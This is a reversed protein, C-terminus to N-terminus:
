ARYRSELHPLLRFRRPAVVEGVVEIRSAAITGGHRSAARLYPMRHPDLMMLRACTADVAPLNSGMVVIGMPVPEGMIPGDGEMGVIGDVIAFGPRLATYLDVISRDIGAHHLPNKPWGYVSGPVTGFLNKMSLTAGAWHHTKLKPLSVLLDATAVTRALKLEGLRTYDQPLTVPYPEDVNNDVYPIRLHTLWEQLGSQELLFETDRRHGPGEAIIVEGADLSRMAEVVAVIFRSDTNIPREHNWEVLNPKLVVRAGRVRAVVDAHDERMGRLLLDVLDAEYSAASLLTVRARPQRLVRWAASGGLGMVAAALTGALVDRRSPSSM